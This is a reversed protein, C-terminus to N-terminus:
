ERGGVEGGGMVVLEGDVYAVVGFITWWYLSGKANEIVIL